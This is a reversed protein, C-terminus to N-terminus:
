TPLDMGFLLLQLNLIKIKCPELLSRNLNCVPHLLHNSMREFEKKAANYRDDIAKLAVHAEEKEEDLKRLEAQVVSYAEEYQDSVSQLTKVREEVEHLEETLKILAIAMEERKLKLSDAYTKATSLKEQASSLNHGVESLFQVQHNYRAKLDLENCNEKKIAAFALEQHQAILKNVETCFSTYDDGLGELTNYCKDALNIMDETRLKDADSTLRAVLQSKLVSAANMLHQRDEVEQAYELLFLFDHQQEEEPSVPLEVPPVGDRSEAPPTEQDVVFLSRAHKIESADKRKQHPNVESGTEYNENGQETLTPFTTKRRKYSLFVPPTVMTGSESQSRLALQTTTTHGERVDQVTSPVLLSSSTHASSSSLASLQVRIHEPLVFEVEACFNNTVLHTFLAKKQLCLSVTDDRDKIGLEKCFHNAFIMFFRAYYVVNTRTVVDGLKTSFENLLLSGLDITRGYMLSYGIILVFITIANYGGCRPGFVKTLTDFFYSWEKRLYRRSVHSLLWPKSAYNIFKLMCVIEEDTPLKEFNSVPLELAENIVSPTLTYSNGKITFKIEGKRTCDAKSWMEQVIEAYIIPSATLAYSVPSIKLFDMLPHFDAHVSEKELFAVQNTVAYVVKGSSSLSTTM